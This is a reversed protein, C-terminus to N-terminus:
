DELYDMARDIAAGPDEEHACDMCVGHDREDHRCCSQCSIEGCDESGDCASKV